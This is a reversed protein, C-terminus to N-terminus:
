GQGFGQSFAGLLQGLSSLDVAVAGSPASIAGGSRVFTLQLPLSGKTNSLQGLDFSLSSLAGGTVTANLTVNKNPVKSLDASGLAAGAGPIESAFTSTVDGALTKLNATITLQDTDGSTTRTVTVDKTLLSKLADIIEKSKGADATPPTSAGLQSGLTKLTSLPLSVWKGEVLSAVFPPLQGSASEIQRYTSAKGLDNLVDKLAVQLYLVQKVFRISLLSKGNDSIAINAAGSNSLGSLKSLTQGDPAAIEFSLQLGALTAAQAATLHANKDQSKIFSLLQSGSAGLKLSATLTQADGLATVASTLEAQPSSSSDNHAAPTSGGSSSGGGCGALLGATATLAALAIATRRPM